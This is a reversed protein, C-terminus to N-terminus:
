SRYNALLDKPTFFFKTLFLFGLIKFAAKMLNSLPCNINKTITVGVFSIRSFTNLTKRSMTIDFVESKKNNSYLIPNKEAIFDVQNEFIMWSSSFNQVLSSFSLFKTPSLVCDLWTPSSTVFLVGDEVVVHIRRSTLFKKIWLYLEPSLLYSPLKYFLADHWVRDIIKQGKITCEFKSNRHNVKFKSSIQPNRATVEINTNWIRASRSRLWM